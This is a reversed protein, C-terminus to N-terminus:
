SKKPMIVGARQAGVADNIKRQQESTLKSWPKDYVKHSVYERPDDKINQQNRKDFRGALFSSLLPYSQKAEGGILYTNLVEPSRFDRSGDIQPEKDKFRDFIYLWIGAYGKSSSIVDFLSFIPFGWTQKFRSIVVFWQIRHTFEGHEAPVGADKALIYNKLAGTFNDDRLFGAFIPVNSTVSKSELGVAEYTAGADSQRGFRLTPVYKDFRVNLGNQVEVNLLADSLLHSPKGMQSDKLEQMSNELEQLQRDIKGSSLYEGIQGLAALQADKGQLEKQFKQQLETIVQAESALISGGELYRIM